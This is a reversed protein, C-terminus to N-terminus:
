HPHILNVFEMSGSISIEVTGTSSIVVDDLAWDDGDDQILVFALYVESGDLSSLDVTRQTWDTSIDTEGWEELVTFSSLDSQTTTSYRIQYTSGFDNPYTDKM